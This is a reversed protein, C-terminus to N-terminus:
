VTDDIVSHLAPHQGLSGPHESHPRVSFGTGADGEEEDFPLGFFSAVSVCTVRSASRGDNTKAIPSPAIMGIMGVTATESPVPISNAPNMAPERM